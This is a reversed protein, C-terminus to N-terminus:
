KKLIIQAMKSFTLGRNMSQKQIFRHAAAEDMMFKEMLYLKATEILKKDEESREKKPPKFRKLLMGVMEKM